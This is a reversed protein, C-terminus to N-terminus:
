ERTRKVSAARRARSERAGSMKRGWEDTKVVLPTAIRDITALPHQRQLEKKRVERKAIREQLAKLKSEQYGINQGQKNIRKGRTQLKNFEAIYQKYFTETQRRAVKPDRSKVQFKGDKIFPKWKNEFDKIDRSYVNISNDVDERTFRVGVTSRGSSFRPPSAGSGPGTKIWDGGDRREFTGRETVRQEATHERPM